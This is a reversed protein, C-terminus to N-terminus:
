FSALEPRPRNESAAGAIIRKKVRGAEYKESLGPETNQLTRNAALADDNKEESVLALGQHRPLCAYSTAHERGLSKILWGAAPTSNTISCPLVMKLLRRAM